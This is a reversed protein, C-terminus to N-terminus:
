TGWALDFVHYDVLVSALRRLKTSIVRGEFLDPDSLENAVDSTKDSTSNHGIERM